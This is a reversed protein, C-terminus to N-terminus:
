GRTLFGTVMELDRVIREPDSHGLFTDGSTTKIHVVKNCWVFARRNGTGRIGYGQNLSWSEISYGVISQRPISRLQFGLMRVEVGQRTFRYQFGSSMVAGCAVAIVIALMAAWFVFETHALWLATVPGILAPVILLMWVGGSHTEEALVDSQYVDVM